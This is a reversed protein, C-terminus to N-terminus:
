HKTRHKIKVGYNGPHEIINRIQKLLTQLPRPDTEYNKTVRLRWNRELIRTDRWRLLWGQEGWQPVPIQHHTGESGDDTRTEHSQINSSEWGGARFSKQGFSKALFKKVRFSKNSARHGFACKGSAMERFVSKRSIEFVYIINKSFLQMWTFANLCFDKQAPPNPWILPFLKRRARQNLFKSNLAAARFVSNSPLRPSFHLPPNQLTGHDYVKYYSSREDGM